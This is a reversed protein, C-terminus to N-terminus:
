QLPHIPYKILKIFCFVPMKMVNALRNEPCSLLNNSKKPDIFVCFDLLFPKCQLFVDMGHREKAGFESNKFQFVQKVSNKSINSWDFVAMLNIGKLAKSQRFNDLEASNIFKDTMDDIVLWILHSICTDDHYTTCYQQWYGPNNLNCVVHKVIIFLVCIEYERKKELGM